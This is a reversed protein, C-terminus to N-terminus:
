SDAAAAAAALIHEDPQFRAMEQEGLSVTAEIGDGSPTDMLYFVNSSIGGDGFSMKIPKGWGFDVKNLPFNCLSSCVYMKYNKGIDEVAKSGLVRGDMDKLEMGRLEMKGKKIQANLGYLTAESEKRVRVFYPWYFNGVCTEPVNKLISRMNTPQILVSPTFASNAAASAAIASKYLLATLVQVRTPNEMGKNAINTKLDALTSNHFVFKRTAWNKFNPFHFQPAEISDYSPWSIFHPRHSPPLQGSSVAAWHALFTCVGCGDTIRHSISVAMAIGGCDFHNLQVVVLPTSSEKEQVFYEKQSYSEKQLQLTPITDNKNLEGWVSGPPFLISLNDDDEEHFARKELIDSMNCEIQAQFFQAGEDNCHVYFGPM